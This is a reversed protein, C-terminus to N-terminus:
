ATKLFDFNTSKTRVGVELVELDNRIFVLATGDSYLVIGADAFIMSKAKNIRFQLSQLGDVRHAQFGIKTHASSTVRAHNAHFVIFEVAQKVTVKVKRQM